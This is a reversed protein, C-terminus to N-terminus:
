RGRRQFNKKLWAVIGKIIALIIILGIIFGLIVKWPLVWFSITKTDPDAKKDLYGQALTIKATYRGLMFGKSWAVNNIRLADPLVYYPPIDVRNVVSGYMNKIEIYGRPNLYVNGKNEFSYSLNVSPNFYIKKNSIFSKLYGDEDAQGKVRIFFLIAIRSKIKIASDVDAPEIEQSNPDKKAQILVSGYLGGPVSDKPITIRIPITIRDGHQLTFEMTEPKIYDKVSYPGKLLGYLIVNSSGDKSGGFDELTIEYKQEKGQRNTVTINKVVTEGPDVLFEAKGPGVVFDGRVPTNNLPEISTAAMAAFSFMVGLILFVSLVLIKKM